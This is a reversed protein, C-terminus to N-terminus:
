RPFDPPPVFDAGLAEVLFRMREACAEEDDGPQCRAHLQVTGDDEVTIDFDSDVLDGLVEDSQLLTEASEDRSPQSVPKGQRNKAEEHIPPRKKAM